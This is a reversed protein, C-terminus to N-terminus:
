VKKKMSRRKHKLLEELEKLEEDHPDDPIVDNKQSDKMLNVGAATAAGIGAGIAVAQGATITAATKAVTAAIGFIIPLLM